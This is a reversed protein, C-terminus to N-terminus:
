LKYKTTNKEYESLPKETVGHEKTDLSTHVYFLASSKAYEKELHKAYGVSQIFWFGAGHLALMKTTNKDTNM